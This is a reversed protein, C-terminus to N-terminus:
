AFTTFAAEFAENEGGQLIRVVPYHAPVNADKMYQQAYKMGKSREASSAGMGVWVFVQSRVAYPSGSIAPSLTWSL